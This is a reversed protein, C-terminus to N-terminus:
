KESKSNGTIRGAHLLILAFIYAGFLCKRSLCISPHIYWILLQKKRMSMIIMSFLEVWLVAFCHQDYRYVSLMTCFVSNQEHNLSVLSLKLYIYGWILLQKRRMSLIIM